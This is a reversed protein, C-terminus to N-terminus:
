MYNTFSLQSLRATVSYTAELQTQLASFRTSAEYPDVSELNNIKKNYIQKKDEHIIIQEDLKQRQYGLEAGAQTLGEVGNNMAKTAESMWAGYAQSNDIESVDVSALMAVGRFIETFAEDNAQVGYDLDSTESIMAKVRENPNGGADLQDTGNYFTEEFNRNPNVTNSSDFITSIESAKAAADAPDTITGGVIGDMVDKPSLGSSPNAQDYDQMPKKDTDIGSFLFEGNYGVNVYSSIEEMVAKAEEQLTVATPQPSGENSVAMAMFNQAAETIKQMQDSQLELKNELLKNDTIFRETKEYSNRVSISQSSQMGLDKAIDFKRGTSLEAGLMELENKNSNVLDRNRTNIQLTTMARVTSIM